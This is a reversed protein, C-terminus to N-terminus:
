SRKRSANLLIQCVEKGTFVTALKGGVFVKVVDEGPIYRWWVMVQKTQPTDCVPCIETERLDNSM